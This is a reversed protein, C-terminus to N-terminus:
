ESAEIEVICSDKIHICIDKLALVQNNARMQQRNNDIHIQRMNRLVVYQYTKDIIHNIRYNNYLDNIPMGCKIIDFSIITDKILAMKLKVRSELDYILIDGSNSQLTLEDQPIYTFVYGSYEGDGENPYATILYNILSMDNSPITRVSDSFLKEDDLIIYLSDLHEYIAFINSVGIKIQEIDECCTPYFVDISDSHIHMGSLYNFICNDYKKGSYKCACCFFLAFIIAINKFIVMTISTHREKNLFTTNM